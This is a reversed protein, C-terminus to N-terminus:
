LKRAEHLTGIGNIGNIIIILLSGKATVMTLAFTLIAIIAVYYYNEAIPLKELM